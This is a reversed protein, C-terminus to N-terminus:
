AKPKSGFLIFLRLGSTFDRNFQRRDVPVVANTYFEDGQVELDSYQINVFFQMEFGLQHETYLQLGLNFGIGFQDFQSEYDAWLLDGFEFNTGPAYPYRDPGGEYQELETRYFPYVGVYAGPQRGGTFESLYFRAEPQILWGSTNSFQNLSTGNSFNETLEFNRHLIGATLVLSFDEGITYEYAATYENNVVASLIDFKFVHKYTNLDLRLQGFAQGFSCATALVIFIYKM